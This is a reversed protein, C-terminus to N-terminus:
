GFVKPRKLLDNRHFSRSNSDGHQSDTLLDTLLHTVITLQPWVTRHISMRNPAFSAGNMRVDPVFFVVDSFDVMLRNQPHFTSPTHFFASVLALTLIERGIPCFDRGDHLRLMSVCDSCQM